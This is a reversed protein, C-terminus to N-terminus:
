GEGESQARQHAAPTEGKACPCQTVFPANGAGCNPCRWGTEGQPHPITPWFQPAPPLTYGWGMQCDEACEGGNRESMCICLRKISAVTM